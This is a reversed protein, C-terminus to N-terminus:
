RSTVDANTAILPLEVRLSTGGGRPSELSIRGGLAQVRDKLGVLGTGRTFAAGGVGDDCVALRLVADSADAEVTVTVTSARAHKAANTLAEAVIYYASVEIHEPLRAEGRLELEIPIPSRHALAKLAPRLGGKALIAPHIGRAIERLEDLAGRAEAVARDLDTGLTGLEPPAVAQAVRLQLVLSVLRQQAGDHLDREIRRRTQDAAAVIRARSTALEARSEANAIATAILETFEALRPETDQPLRDRRSGVSMAGWVRGEVVIPSAVASRIAPPLSASLDDADRRAARGTAQVSALASHPDPKGRSGPQAHEFADGGMVRAEGDPEFRVIATSDANFLAGVEEAVTAFVLNAGIGRAVLTAVRRLAAQEDAIQRYKPYLQSNDLSVALQGAILKVTDLRETSFADRILRNELLLVAQLAGRSHIPLALLACCDIDAFYPDRAFRDDRVADGVVLPEGMRQAYRLVSMPVVDERGSGSVAVAGGGDGGSTPWVWARRDKSWLLLHVGTAGTLAGLVQAVRSHLREISTESSLAQSASLIGLLDITGTTVASRPHRLDDAEHVNQTMFADPQPRLSPEAWDLHSVKATAGWVLYDQRAQSLLDYGAHEVGHALYFRAAREAILARHWPRQRQAVERRAADFALVAARFDGVAWAREAELLRLLHLFNDPANAARAALWRTVDDLESLLARREDGHGARAQGALALGRLLHAVATPYNGPVASLLPTAAATHRALGISDGFIAAVIAHDIQAFCLALPNDAYRDIPVAEGAAISSEGRLVSALWRHSELWQGVQESGTRRVFALGAEVEAVYVDLSAACDMLYQAATQYTYGAYALEGGVILGERARQAAYVGNEIPDFWCALLAFEFRAHSTDPEYGRAEGLALIRRMARYGVAYDGRLAVAAFAAISAPGVLTRGPGHELWIRLAELSLWAYMSLDAYYAAPLIANILHAAALLTPATIDPRADADAGDTHDLWRYLHDFQHDLEPQLRGASPVTVGVERLSDIGLAVAETFRNRHTLSSVQVATANARGLAAPHLEEITRYEEDAEELRGMSYLAAHRGTHVEILTATEGTDLLRLAAALLADVLAYDGILAAQAAARRLLAVVARREAADEVLDVVPLYQEAAVAFLEPVGALRRAMTLQLGRRRERDLGGLIVERIRDHRFRVAEHAGPEVVLLGEELAPGLAQEVADAPDGTATQLLGLEARGGLCAMAEVTQRSTAPMAEFRAALLGTVESQGLHARVAGADWRWGAVTAVLAGEGRLVNLLEVTEYPNGSTHSETVEVLGAAAAPDVHLMEAVMAVSDTEPLNALPVHVVGPQDRWRSLPAALPHAADVESDRYAGVLLLGEVPEESVVLDFLGLPTRGAWQLDDVFVVVPRKPSAVARLVSAANRQARLQATLPDGPDPAIRLLAAFEPVTATLLGANAGVADIIRGRVEALEDEPEALLLRGLARFAQYVGDFELDRRYQDFKGAVFWGDGGTVVPRLEDVLATKGVGPAGGVLVVRCRGALADAFAAQLAAVEDERGVLRPPRLRLPVDHEGVRLAGTPANRLRQLDYLAGEATQYRNDPEKELLHMIIDSLPKPVARNVEAPPAPVRALHDHTLRLPDGTGFPPSGTALEYLTAGLAYLDARQDVSRGTRGTQEPALYALTGVIQTHHTFEPRIEALSTALGFGVLCPGGDPSIVINAPSIDRHMVGRRHMEAVAGALEVALGILEGVALPKALAALSTGGADALVISGPYRPAEVLQAVREVGRLRELMAVEHRLRREADPGLPVKRIVTSEPLSVRSVQTRASEHVIASRAPPDRDSQGFGSGM